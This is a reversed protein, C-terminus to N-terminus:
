KREREYRPGCVSRNGAVDLSGDGVLRGALTKGADGNGDRRRGQLALLRLEGVGVAVVDDGLKRGTLIEDAEVERGDITLKVIQTM